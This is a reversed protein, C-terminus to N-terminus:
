TALPIEPELDLQRPSELCAEHWTGPVNALEYLVDGGHYFGVGDVVALTGAYPLQELALPHHFTWDRAFRVLFEEPKIRVLTGVPFLEEYSPM